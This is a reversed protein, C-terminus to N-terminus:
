GACCARWSGWSVRSSWGGRRQVAAAAKQQEARVSDAHAESLTPAKEGPAPGRPRQAKGPNGSSAPKSAATTKAQALQESGSDTRQATAASKSLRLFADTADPSAAGM